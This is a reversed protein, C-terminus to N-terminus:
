HRLFATKALMTSTRPIELFHAFCCETEILTLLRSVEVEREKSGCKEGVAFKMGTFTDNAIM